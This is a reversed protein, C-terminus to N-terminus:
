SRGDPAFRYRIAGLRLASGLDSGGIKIAIQRGRVETNLFPTPSAGGLSVTFPGYTIPVDSSYNQSYVTLQVTATTSLLVFDPHLQDVYAYDTGELLDFYGSQVSWTIPAGNADNTSEHTQILGAMDVALPGASGVFHDIWATRQYVTGTDWVNEVYNFKIYNFQAGGTGKVPFFWIAANRLSNIGGVILDARSHDLTNYFFDWVPCEIPSVAGGNMVFFQKISPWMVLNGIVVPAASSIAECGVAIRNFSFVFPLGVYTMTYLDADTWILVTLGIALAAVVTSGTPLQYSGAQNTASTTWDTFDGSDCWRILTPFQSVGTSSGCSVVIQVQSMTLVVRNYLPSTASLVVAPNGLLPAWFYIGQDKPAAILDEGFHDLSWYKMPFTVGAPTADYQTQTGPTSYDSYILLRTTTGAAVYTVGDLRAWGLLRRCIGIVPTASFQTCGAIKQPMGAYFEIGDSAAWSTQNLLPSQELNVGPMLKLKRMPM